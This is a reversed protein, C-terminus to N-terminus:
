FRKLDEKNFEWEPTELSNFDVSYWPSLKEDSPNRLIHFDQAPMYSQALMFIKKGTSKNVAIDMVLIAHGYPTGKQIFVDGIQIDNIDILSQLEKILSATGAYTFVLDLYRRFNEYSYDEGGSNYWSVKNGKVSVRNGEAYKNWECNFGSVFNFHIEDNKKQAYLYEARVRMIADACQQLDKDGVDINIVAYQANQNPKKNGNYLYVTNDGKKLELNRLYDAFSNEDTKIREYGEPVPISKVFDYPNDSKSKSSQENGFLNKNKTSCNLFLFSFAIFFFLKFM